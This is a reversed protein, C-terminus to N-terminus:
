KKEPSLPREEQSHHTAVRSGSPEAAQLQSQAGSISGELFHLTAAHDKPTILNGGTYPSELKAVISSITAAKEGGTMSSLERLASIEVVTVSKTGLLKRTDVDGTIM